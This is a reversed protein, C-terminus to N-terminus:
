HEKLQTTLGSEPHGVGWAGAGLVIKALARPRDESCELAPLGQPGPPISWPSQRSGWGELGKM